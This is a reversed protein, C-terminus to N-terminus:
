TNLKELTGLHPDEILVSRYVRHAEEVFGSNLLSRAYLILINIDSYGADILEKLVVICRVYENQIFHIRAIGAKSLWHGFQYEIKKFQNEADQLYGFELLHDGLLFGIKPDEPMQTSLESLLQIYNFTLDKDM